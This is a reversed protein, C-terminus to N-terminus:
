RAEEPTRVEQRDLQFRLGRLVDGRSLMGLLKSPTNRNNVVPLSRLKTTIMLNGADIVTDEAEVAVVRRQMVDAAHIDLELTGPRLRAALFSQLIDLKSVIGAVRGDNGVVPFANYDHRDFLTLVDAVRTTPTVVVPARSMVEHVAIM